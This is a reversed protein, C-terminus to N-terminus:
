CAIIFSPQQIKPPSYKTPKAPPSDENDESDSTIEPPEVEENEDAADDRLKEAQYQSPSPEDESASRPSPVTVVFDNKETPGAFPDCDSDGSESSTTLEGFQRRPM